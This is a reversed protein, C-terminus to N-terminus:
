LSKMQSLRGTAKLFERFKMWNSYHVSACHKPDKWGIKEFHAILLERAEEMTQENTFINEFPMGIDHRYTHMVQSAMNEPRAYSYHEKLYHIFEQRLEQIDIDV